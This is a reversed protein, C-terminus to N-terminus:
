DRRARAFPLTTLTLFMLLFESDGFNYEFMGAALMAAVTGLAAAPLVRDADQRFRRFLDITLAVVFWLWVALAPLGREVAIQMPVNHVHPAPWDLADRDRYMQYIKKTNNLGVGTLPYDRVIRTGAHLMAIRDSSSPDKVNAVSYVRATLAPPALALVIALVGAVLVPVAAVLRFDRLAFLISLAVFAGVWASRTSTVVIAVLLAPMILAPWVRDKTGFVLRAATAVTVLLLLGSYTMWHGLSGQIRHALNDYGLIGYQVVGLVASLAGITIAVTLVLNAREGRTFRYVVPVVLFLLMQKASYLSAAPDLSFAVSVMTVGAYAALPWFMAPVVDRDRSLVLSIGWVLLTLWLLMEGAWLSFQVAAVFGIVGALGATDLWRYRATDAGPLTETTM